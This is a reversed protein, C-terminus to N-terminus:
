DVGAAGAVLAPDLDIIAASAGAAKAHPLKALSNLMATVGSVDRGQHASLSYALPEGAHRGDPTAGVTKGFGINLLFSFLHVVYRGQLPSRMEDMLAIFDDAIRRAFEDVEDIDNGYKPARRLLRLPEADHFDQRLAELLADATLLPEDFLCHKVAALADATNATGLFCISHYNYVPGGDTIDRGRELCAETLISWLPLPGFERQALEGRNCNYVMREAFFRVQATYAAYFEDFSTMERLAGTAPGVQLGSQPDVGNFLALELCKLANFWGSVAHPSAKGPITLEICGIPTYDRADELAIGRETLAPIFCDDNFLFPIGGGRSILEAARHLFAPPTGAHVRISLDRIVDVIETAELIIDSLENAADRGQADVGGLTIAQVDYELYLKCALEAMIELAEDRTLRGAAIDAQYYPWLMQDLRGLGNANIGDEGCTLLHCLWLSQVAEFFTTAGHAPVRACTVAIRNLRAREAADTAQAALAWAQEAYRNGLLLGAACVHLGARWFNEKRPYDPDTLSASHLLNEIEQKIGAFGLRLVKAYNRISHNEIWGSAIYVSSTETSLSWNSSGQQTDAVTEGIAYTKRDHWAEVTKAVAPWEEEPVGLAQLGQCTASDSLDLRLSIGPQAYPLHEGALRWLPRIEIPTLVVQEYLMAARAQVRSRGPAQARYCAVALMPPQLFSLFSGKREMIEARLQAIREM